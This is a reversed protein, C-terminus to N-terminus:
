HAMERCAAACRRCAGACEDMSGVKECDDACADCIEACVRCIAPHRSSGRIMFDASLWCIQACDALLRVHGPEVHKDGADLCHQYLMRECVGHCETCAEICDALGQESTPHAPTSM